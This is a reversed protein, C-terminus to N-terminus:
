LWIDWKINCIDCDYLWLCSVFRISVLLVNRNVEPLVLILMNLAYLQKQVDLIGVALSSL